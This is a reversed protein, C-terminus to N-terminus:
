AAGRKSTQMSLLERKSRAPFLYDVPLALLDALKKEASRFRKRGSIIDSVYQQSVGILSAAKTITLGRRALEAMCRRKRETDIPLINQM